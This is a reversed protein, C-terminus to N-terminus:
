SLVKNLVEEISTCSRGILKELDKSVKSFQGEAIPLYLGYVNFGAVAEPEGMSILKEVAESPELSVHKVEKQYLKSLIEAYEDFSTATSNVLNYVKNEHGEGIIASAAALALDDILVFNFRGNAAATILSGNSVAKNVLDGTINELYFGNRLFTYSIGTTKIMYETALHVNQLGVVNMDEAYAIGTYFIHSVKADRAAKVVNAHQSIRLTNDFDPSSVFMLKEIGEFANRLSAEDNYDGTKITVGLKKLKEGKQEDRVLVAIDKAEVGKELLHTIIAGGLRGTAGTVLFRIM